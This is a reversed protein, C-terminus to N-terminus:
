DNAILLVVEEWPDFFKRHRISFTRARRGFKYVAIADLNYPALRLDLPRFSGTEIDVNVREAPILNNTILAYKYKPLVIKIFKKVDATELHQLVDKVIILDAKTMDALNKPAKKFNINKQGYLKTNKDVLSEVVEIGLYNVGEWNIYRSFQWDGFGYDVVSTINNTDIFTQLFDRYGKTVSPLSGHGSGFGWADSKYIQEFVNM